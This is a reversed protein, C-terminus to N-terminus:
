RRDEIVAEAVSPGRVKVPRRLGRPKGGAWHVTGDRLMAELRENRAVGATTMVAVPKGRETVVVREGQKVLRLYRSLQAKLERVGVTAM